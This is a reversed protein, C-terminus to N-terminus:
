PVAVCVPKYDNYQPGPKFLSKYPGGRTWFYVTFSAGFDATFSSPRPSVGIPIPERTSSWEDPLNEARLVTGEWWCTPSTRAEARPVAAYMLLLMALTAAVAVVTALDRRAARSM